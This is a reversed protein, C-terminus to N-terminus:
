HWYLAVRTEPPLADIYAQAARRRPTDDGLMGKLEVASVHKLPLGYPTDIVTGYCCEDKCSGDPVRSLYSSFRRSVDLGHAKEVPELKESQGGGVEIITHSFITEGHIMGDVVLLKLDIGM